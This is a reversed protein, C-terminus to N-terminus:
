AKYMYQIRVIPRKCLPCDKVAKLCHTCFATHGCDLIMSDITNQYCIKCLNTDVDGEIVLHDEEEEEEEEGVFSMLPAPEGPLRKKKKEKPPEPTQVKPQPPVFVARVPPDEGFMKAIMEVLEVLHCTNPTWSWLYPLKTEGTFDVNKHNPTIIMGTTPTVFVSPPEHPYKVNIWIVVPIQYLNGRFWVPITGTVNLLPGGKQGILPSLTPYKKIVELIHTRIKEWDQYINKISGMLPELQLIKEEVNSSSM